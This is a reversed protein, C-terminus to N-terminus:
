LVEDFYPFVIHNNIFLSGSSISVIINNIKYLIAYNVKMLKTPLASLGFQSDAIPLLILKIMSGIMFINFWPAVAGIM